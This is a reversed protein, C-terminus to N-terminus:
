LSLYTMQETWLMSLFSTFQHLQQDCRRTLFRPSSHEQSISEAFIRVSASISRHYCFSSIHENGPQFDAAPQFDDEGIQDSKQIKLACIIFYNDQFNDMLSKRSINNENYIINMSSSSEMSEWFPFFNKRKKVRRRKIDKSIRRGKVFFQSHAKHKYVHWFRSDHIMQPYSKEIVNRFEISLEIKLKHSFM